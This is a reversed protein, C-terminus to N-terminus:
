QLWDGAGLEELQRKVVELQSSLMRLSPYNYIPGRPSENYFPRNCGPCGSTLFARAVVGPPLPPRWLARPPSATFDLYDEPDLGHELLLRALQLARYEAVGIGPLRPLGPVPTYRFLAVKAGMAYLRKMTGLMDRLTEGLGAVLHVHVRGEGFVEVAEGIFKMYIRWPYPKAVRAAVSPTAADLGVGLREVGTAHLEELIRHHVPTIAVSIPLGTEALLRTICLTEEVFCPKLVTQFCLRKFVRPSERLKNLVEGLSVHPWTIRSLREPSSGRAQSCFLCSGLCGGPSYQLMYLTTPEEAARIKTMGLRALSGISVRVQTGGCDRGHLESGRRRKVPNRPGSYVYLSSPGCV